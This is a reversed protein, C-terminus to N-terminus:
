YRFIICIHCTLKSLTKLSTSQGHSSQWFMSSIIMATWFLFVRQGMKKKKHEKKDQVEILITSTEETAAVKKYSSILSLSLCVIFHSKKFELSTVTFFYQFRIKLLKERVINAWSDIDNRRGSTKVVTM